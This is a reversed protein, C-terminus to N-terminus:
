VRVKKSKRNIRITRRDDTTQPGDDKKELESGQEENVIAKEIERVDVCDKLLVKKDKDLLYVTPIARLDYISNKYLWENEDRGHVWTAPLEPLHHLWPMKDRDTYIALVKTKRKDISRNLIESKALDDTMNKCAECEPNYFYLLTYDAKLAYMVAKSDEATTYVFDNAVSGVRNQMLLFFRTRTKAKSSSDIWKSKMKANLLKMFLPEDRYASNPNGFPKELYEIMKCFMVSDASAITLLSDLRLANNEKESEKTSVVFEKLMIEDYMATTREISDGCGMLLVFFIVIILVEKM